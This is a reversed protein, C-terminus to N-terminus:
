LPDQKSRRSSVNCDARIFCTKFIKKGKYQTAKYFLDMVMNRYGYLYEDAGHGDMSVTFGNSKMAEYIPSITTLPTGIIDDYFNHDAVLNDMLKQHNTELFVGESNLDSLAAKAFPLDNVRDDEQMAM